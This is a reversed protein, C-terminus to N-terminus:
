RVSVSPPQQAQGRENQDFLEQTRSRRWKRWQFLLIRQVYIEDTDAGLVSAAATQLMLPKLRPHYPAIDIKGFPAVASIRPWVALAETVAQAEQTSNIQVISGFNTPADVPLMQEARPVAVIHM